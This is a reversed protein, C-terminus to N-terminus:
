VLGVSINTLHSVQGLHWSPESDSQRQQVQVFSDHGYPVEFQVVNEHLPYTDMAM